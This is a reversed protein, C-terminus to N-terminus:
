RKSAKNSLADARGNQERPIWYCEYRIGALDEHLLGWALDRLQKLHPKKCKMNGLVQEIVLKSDGEIIIADIQEAKYCALWTLAAILANWETVNNTIGEERLWDFGEAIPRGTEAEDIHWGIGGQARPSGNDKCSGDFRLIIKM